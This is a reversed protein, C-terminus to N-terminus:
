DLKRWVVLVCIVVCLLAFFYLSYKKIIETKSEYLASSETKINEQVVDYSTGLRIADGTIIMEDPEVLVELDDENNEIEEIDEEEGDVEEVIEREEVYISDNFEIGDRIKFFILADGDFDEYDDRIRIDIEGSDNGSDEFFNNLYFRGSKWKESDEDFRDSIVNEDDDEIWVKVDYEEDELNFIEIDIDEDWDLEVYIGVISNNNESDNLSSNDDQGIVFLINILLIFVIFWEKRM